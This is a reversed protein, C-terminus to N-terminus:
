IGLATTLRSRDAAEVRAYRNGSRRVAREVPSIIPSKFCVKRLSGVPAAATQAYFAALAKHHAWSARLHEAFSVEPRDRHQWHARKMISRLQSRREATM